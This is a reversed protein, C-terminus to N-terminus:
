SIPPCKFSNPVGPTNSCNGYSTAERVTYIAGGPCQYTWYTCCMLGSPGSTTGCGTSVIKDSTCLTTDSICSGLAVSGGIVVGVVAVVIRVITHTKM